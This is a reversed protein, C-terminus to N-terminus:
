DTDETGIVSTMKGHLDDSIVRGLKHTLSLIVKLDKIKKEKNTRQRMIQEFCVDILGSILEDSIYEKPLYIVEFVLQRVWKHHLM